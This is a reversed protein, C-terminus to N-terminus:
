LRVTLVAPVPLPVTVALVELGSSLPETTRNVAVGAASEIKVPQDPLREPVVLGAVIVMSLLLDTVAVKM